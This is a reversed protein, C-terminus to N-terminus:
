HFICLWNQVYVKLSQKTRRIAMTFEYKFLLYFYHKLSCYQAKIVVLGQVLSIFHSSVLGKVDRNLKNM